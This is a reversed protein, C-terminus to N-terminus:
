NLFRGFYIVFFDGLDSGGKVKRLYGAPSGGRKGGILFEIWSSLVLKCSPSCDIPIM